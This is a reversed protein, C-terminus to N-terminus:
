WHGRTCGACSATRRSAAWCRVQWTTLEMRQAVRLRHHPPPPGVEGTEMNFVAAEYVVMPNHIDALFATTQVEDVIEWLRRMYPGACVPSVPQADVAAAFGAQPCVSPCDTAGCTCGVSSTPPVQQQQQEAADAAERTALELLSTLQVFM